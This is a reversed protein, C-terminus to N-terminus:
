WSAWMFVLVRKGRLDSIDVRQGEITNVSFQPVPQGVVIKSSAIMPLSWAALLLAGILLRNM